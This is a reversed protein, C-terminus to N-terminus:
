KITISGPSSMVNIVNSNKDYTDGDPCTVSVQYTGSVAKNSARFTLELVTGDKIDGDNLKEAYCPFICGDKFKAPKTVNLASFADGADAKILTLANSDYNVVMSTGLIGPNNKVTAKVTVTEGASATVNEVYIVPQNSEEVYQATVTTNNQIETFINDWGTFIYGERTPNEPATANEGKNVTQNKLTTGDYDKFVVTYTGSSDDSKKSVYGTDVTVGDTLTVVLHSNGDVYASSVTADAKGSKERLSDLWQEASGDYGYELALNYASDSDSAAEVTNSEATSDSSLTTQQGSDSQAKKGFAMWLGVILAIILIVASVAVIIKVKTKRM